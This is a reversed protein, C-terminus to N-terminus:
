SAAGFPPPRMLAGSSGSVSTVCSMISRLPTHPESRTDGGTLSDSMRLHAMATYQGSVGGGIKQSAAYAADVRQPLMMAGGSKLGKAQGM